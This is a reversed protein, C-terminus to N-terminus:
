SRRTSTRSLRSKIWAVVPPLCSIVVIAIIVLQFNDRVIPLNGFFFGACLFFSVWFLGGFVNFRIFQTYRMHGVGAVFPALTRVIPIFRAIVITKGGHRDFYGETKEIHSRKVWGREVLQRGFIKGIHYNATDGLIAAGVLLIWLIFLNLRGTAAFAGAAFILSDGPLFPTVVLGTECFIILFLIFYTLIGYSAIFTDLYKDFHLVIDILWGM